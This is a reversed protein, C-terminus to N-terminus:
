GEAHTTPSTVVDDSLRCAATPPDMSAILSPSAFITAFARCISDVIWSRCAESVSSVPAGACARRAYTGRSIMASPKGTFGTVEARSCARRDVALTSWPGRIPGSWRISRSSSDM